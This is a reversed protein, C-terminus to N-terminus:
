LSHDVKCAMIEWQSRCQDPSRGNVVVENWDIKKARLSFPIMDNKPVHRQLNSLLSEIEEVKWKTEDPILEVHETAQMKEDLFIVFNVFDIL